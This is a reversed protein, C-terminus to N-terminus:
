ALWESQRDAMQLQSPLKRSTSYVFSILPLSQILVSEKNMYVNTCSENCVNKDAKQVHNRHPTPYLIVLFRFVVVNRCLFRTEQCLSYALACTNSKPCPSFSQPMFYFFFFFDLINFTSTASFTNSQQPSWLNQHRTLGQTKRVDDKNRQRQRQLTVGGSPSVDGEPAGPHESSGEPAVPPAPAIAIGAVEVRENGMLWPLGERRRMLPRMWRLLLRSLMSRSSELTLRSWVLM